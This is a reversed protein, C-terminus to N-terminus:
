KTGERSMWWERVQCVQQKCLFCKIKMARMGNEERWAHQGWGWKRKRKM